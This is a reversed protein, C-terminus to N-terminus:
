VQGYGGGIELIVDLKSVDINLSDEALMLYWAKEVSAASAHLPQLTYINV